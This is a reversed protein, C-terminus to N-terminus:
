WIEGAYPQGFGPSRLSPVLRKQRLAKFIGHCIPICMCYEHNASYLKVPCCAIFVYITFLRAVNLSNGRLRPHVPDDCIM